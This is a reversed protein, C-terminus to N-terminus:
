PERQRAVEVLGGWHDPDMAVLSAAYLEVEETPFEDYLRAVAPALKEPAATELEHHEDILGDKQPIGLEDLFRALMERRHELHLAMLMSAALSDDPRVSRALHQTRREVPLRRVAVERFRLAAAIALDASRRAHSQEPREYLSRAALLKTETALESWVRSPTLKDVPVDLLMRM